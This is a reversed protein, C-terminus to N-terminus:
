RKGAAMYWRNKSTVKLSTHEDNFHYQSRLQSNNLINNLQKNITIKQYFHESRLSPLHAHASPEKYIVLLTLIIQCCSLRDLLFCMRLIWSRISRKQWLLGKHPSHEQYCSSLHHLVILTFNLLSLSTKPNKQSNQKCYTLNKQPMEFQSCPRCEHHHDKISRPYGDRAQGNSISCIESLYPFCVSSVLYHPSKDM